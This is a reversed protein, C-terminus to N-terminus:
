KKMVELGPSRNLFEDYLLTHRSELPVQWGQIFLHHIKTRTEFPDGDAVFLNAVKGPEISGLHASLGFIEAPVITVARLAEERGMGYTAAFGAHYPLNRVNETENTRLAVKVGAKQMKGANAYASAYHDSARGPISLVPGTIVPIGSLAISDAVRWGEAVGTFVARMRHTKVWHLAKLIDEKRNVEVLLQMTGRVVPLLAEMEPQYDLASKGGASDIQAYLLAQSWIDNLNKLAKEEEKKIDEDTRRDFRSRRGSAPFNLVVGQYGAFMQEPTYGHLHILAATGAFLGGQPQALVTTVGNVRAVPILVSNPNVATLAKVHPSLDGIENADQTLSISGIESLGLQTGGDIMGPYVTLGSCDIQIADEPVPVNRGVAAIRGDHILVTGQLTGRTVTEITANTLAFTGSVPRAVQQAYGAGLSYVILLFAATCRLPRCLVSYMTNM